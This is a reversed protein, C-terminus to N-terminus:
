YRLQDMRRRYEEDDIEGHAYRRSLIQEPTGPDHRQGWVARILLAGGAVILLWLVLNLIVIGTGMGHDYWFMDPERRVSGYM